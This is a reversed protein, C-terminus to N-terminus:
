AAHAGYSLIDVFSDVELSAGGVLAGDIDDEAMLAAINGPNVSGGYQLRTASATDAGWWESLLSRIHRHVEQAQTPTATVGTGIAWIPEYAVVVHPALAADCDALGARLQRKVVAATEGAQRQQSSEGICVIPRLGTQLAARVKQRVTDDTESFYQRRESHGIIVYSCGVDLLLPASVEGTYAGEPEWFLDQAALHLSTSQLREHIAALATFPAALLVDVGQLGSVHHQLEDVFQRAEAVTKHLKWNAAIIPQRTM